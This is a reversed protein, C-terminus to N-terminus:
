DPYSFTAFMETQVHVAQQPECEVCTVEVVRPKAAFVGKREQAYVTNVDGVSCGLEHAAQCRASFCPMGLRQLERARSLAKSAVVTLYSPM